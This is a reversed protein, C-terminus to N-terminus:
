GEPLNMRRLLDQFRPDDRVSDFTPLGLSPLAPDRDAFAIELWELALDNEGARLYLNAVQMAQTQTRRSRPAAIDALRRMAGAYGAEAFGRTLAEEGERDSIAARFLKESALAEEYAGKLHLIGSLFNRAFPLNPSTRLAKRLQAVADDYRRVFTLDLGYLAQYLANFPDLELAREIQAMAEDPRKMISLFDSYYARAEAHNPNLEIAREFAREASPWDWEGWPKHYALARHAKALSEDM